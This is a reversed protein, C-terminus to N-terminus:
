NVLRDGIKTLKIYKNNGEKEFFIYELEELQELRKRITPKTVDLLKMLRVQNVMIGKEQETKIVKLVKMLKPPILEQMRRRYFVVFITTVALFLMVFLLFQLFSHLISNGLIHDLLDDIIETVIFSSILIVFFGKEKQSLKLMQIVITIIPEPVRKITKSIVDSTQRERQM